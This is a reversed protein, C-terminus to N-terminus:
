RPSEFLMFLLDKSENTDMILTQDYTLSFITESLRHLGSDTNSGVQSPTSGCSRFFGVM